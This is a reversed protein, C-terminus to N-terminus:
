MEAILEARHESGTSGDRGVFWFGDFPRLGCSTGGSSTLATVIGPPYRTLMAAAVDARHERTSPAAVSRLVRMLLAVPWLPIALVLLAGAGRFLLEPAGTLVLFLSAVSSDGDRLHVVEHAVMGELALEDLAETATTTVLWRRRLAFSAANPVDGPASMVRPMPIGATKAEGAVLRTVRTGDSPTASLARVIWADGFERAVFFYFGGLVLAVVVGLIPHGLLWGVGLGELATLGVFVGLLIQIQRRSARRALEPEVAVPEQVGLDKRRAVPGHDLTMREPRRWRRKGFRKPQTSM